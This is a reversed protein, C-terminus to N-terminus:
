DGGVFATITWRGARKEIVMRYDLPSYVLQDSIYGERGDPLRVGTVLDGARSTVLALTWPVTAPNASETGTEKYLRAGPLIVVQDFWDGDGDSEVQMSMSPIVRAKESRACGLHLMTELQSWVNGLETPDFSWEDAFADRGSAGGFNVLVDPALLSLLAKRDRNSVSRRLQARFTAFGRDQACQEVPPLTPPFAHPPGALALLALIAGTV